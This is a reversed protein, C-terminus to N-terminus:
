LMKPDPRFTNTLSAEYNILRPPPVMRSPHHLLDEQGRLSPAFIKPFLKQTEPYAIKSGSRPPPRLNTLADNPPPAVIIFEM